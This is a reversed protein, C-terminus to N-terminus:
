FSKNERNLPLVVTVTTGVNVTSSITLKGGLSEARERMGLLGFSKPRAPDGTLFGRGNDSVSLRVGDPTRGFMVKVSSAKAHRAINTLIEQFMRFIATALAMDPCEIPETQLECRIGVRRSFEGAQWELAAILGLEDLIPPRLATLIRRVTQLTAGAMRQMEPLKEEIAADKIGLRAFRTELWVLEIRLLTLAQGLEDHLERAMNKREEERVAQIRLALQRMLIRSREVEHERDKTETIDFLFGRAQRHPDNANTRRVVQALWIYDGNSKKLRFESQLDSGLQPQESESRAFRMAAEVDETHIITEWFGPHHWASLPYGLLAPAQPGIYSFRKDRLDYEFPIAKTTEALNRFLAENNVLEEFAMRRVTIDIATGVIKHAEGLTSDKFISERTRLWVWNGGSSRLRFDREIIEGERCASLRQFHQDHEFLEDPHALATVFYPNMESLAEATYGLIEGVRGNVYLCRQIGM